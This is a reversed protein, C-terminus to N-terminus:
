LRESYWWLFIAAFLIAPISEAYFTTWWHPSWSHYVTIRLINGSIWAAALLLVILKKPRNTPALKPIWLKAPEQPASVVNEVKKHKPYALKCFLWVVFVFLLAVFILFILM